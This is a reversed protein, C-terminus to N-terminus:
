PREELGHRRGEAERDVAVRPADRELVRSERFADIPQVAVPDADAAVARDAHADPAPRPEEGDLDDVLLAVDLDHDSLASRDSRAGRSTSDGGKPPVMMFSPSM